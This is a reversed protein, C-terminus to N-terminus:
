SPAGIVANTQEVKKIIMEHVGVDQKDMESGYNTDNKM